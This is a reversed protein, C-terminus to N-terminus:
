NLSIDASFLAEGPILLSDILLDAERPDVFIEEVSQRIIILLHHRTLYQQIEGILAGMQVLLATCGEIGIHRGINRLVIREIFLVLPLHFLKGHLLKELGPDVPSKRHDVFM